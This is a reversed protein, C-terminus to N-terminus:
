DRVSYIKFVGRREVVARGWELTTEPGAPDRTVLRPGFHLTFNRYRMVSDAPLTRVLVLGRGGCERMAASAGGRLRGELAMWGDHWTLGTAPRSQPFERWLIDRFEDASICLALLSDPSGSQLARCIGRGLGDLSTAGGRLPVRVAPAGPRRGLLVATSEPDVLPV